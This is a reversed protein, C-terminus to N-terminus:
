LRYRGRSSDFVSKRTQRSRESSRRLDSLQRASGPFFLYWRHPEFAWRGDRGSSTDVATVFGGRLAAGSTSSLRGSITGYGNGGPPPYAASAFAIDDASLRRQSIQGTFTNQYMTAGLVGTHDAGLAHGLEHTIVSQIDFTGDAQTTSFMMAPNFVIDTETIQGDPSFAHVTKAVDSGLFNRIEPTDLFVIVNLRDNPNNAVGTTGLPAFRIASTPISSWTAMAARIAGAPDSDATIFPRGQANLLGPAASSNLLFQVNSFDTRRLVAGNITLRVYAGLSPTLLAALSLAPAIRSLM